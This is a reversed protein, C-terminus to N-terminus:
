PRSTPLHCAICTLVVRQSASENPDVAATTAADTAGHRKWLCNAAPAVHTSWAAALFPLASVCVVFALSATAMRWDFPRRRDGSGATAPQPRSSLSRAAAEADAILEATLFPTMEPSDGGDGRVSLPAFAALAPQLVEEMQRCRPCAALHTRLAADERLPPGTLAEFADDCTM